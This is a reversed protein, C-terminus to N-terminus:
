FEQQIAVSDTKRVPKQVSLWLDVVQGQRIRSIKNDYTFREPSQRYVFANPTDQVDKDPVIAGINLGTTELLLAAESYSLAFLDPVNFEDQGLGSGLVLSIESGMVIKEGPKIRKRDHRQELVSNKAFDPRFTTDKLKLGYQKLVLEATRFSMGELNPMEVSPPVARNITLYVTRNRKVVSEAEPFQRLVALPAATDSYVSDQIEIDFGEAELLKEAEALSVGTVMPITLTKGHMTFYDLSLLFAFLLVFLLVISFLINVWLPKGTIFKFM